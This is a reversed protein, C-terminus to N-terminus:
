RRMPPPTAASRGGTADVASSRGMRGSSSPVSRCRATPTRRGRLRSHTPCIRNTIRWPLAEQSFTFFRPQSLFVKAARPADSIQEGRIIGPRRHYKCFDELYRDSRIELFIKNAIERSRLNSSSLITDRANDSNIYKIYKLIYKEDKFSSIIYARDDQSLIFFYKRLYKEKDEDNSFSCIIGSKNFTYSHLYEKKLEDSKLSEIILGKDM